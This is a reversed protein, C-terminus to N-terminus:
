HRIHAQLDVRPIHKVRSYGKAPVLHAANPALMALFGQMMVCLHSTERHVRATM